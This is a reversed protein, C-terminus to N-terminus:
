LPRAPVQRAHRAAFGRTPPSCIRGGRCLRAFAGQARETLLAKRGGRRRGRERVRRRIGLDSLLLRLAELPPTAAFM